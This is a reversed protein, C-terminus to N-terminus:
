RDELPPILLVQGVRIKNADSVGNASLIRQVGKTTGYHIQSIRGLIEGKAVTHYRAQGDADTFPPRDEAVDVAGALEGPDIEYIRLKQGVVIKRESEIANWRLLDTWRDADGLERKAIHSLTEGQHVRVTRFSADAPVGVPPGDVPRPNNGGGLHAVEGGAPRGPDGSEPDAVPPAYFRSPDVYRKRKDPPLLRVSELAGPDLMIAAPEADAPQAKKGGLWWGAAAMLILLFFALLATRQVRNM